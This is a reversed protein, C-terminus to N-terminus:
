AGVDSSRSELWQAVGTVTEFESDIWQSRGDYEVLEAIMKIRPYFLSPCGQHSQSGTERIKRAKNWRYDTIPNGAHSPPISELRPYIETRKSDAPLIEDGCQLGFAGIHIFGPRRWKM